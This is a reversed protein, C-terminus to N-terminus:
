KVNLSGRSIIPITPNTPNVAVPILPRIGHAAEPANAPAKRVKIIM